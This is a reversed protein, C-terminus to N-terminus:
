LALRNISLVAMLISMIIGAIIVGLGLILAPELLTLLRQITTKVVRDYTDAVRLLMEDLRGTEEGVQVMHVALRPFVGVKMMPSALGQGEKLGAAVTGLGEAMARNGLTERVISLATLVAVGNALLTGLTRAFRATEIKSVLDGVLPLRLMRRDWRYRRGPDTLERRLYLLLGVVLALGLWWYNRLYEGTTVVVQTPLPLARGAQEFLVTFQPVVYTLLIIVSLGAVLVLIAPYILASKVSERLRGIEELFEALRALVVELAGGAEGARVMNIYFHTFVGQAEMADALSAGARVEDRIHGLLQKVRDEDSLETVLELARDLPLGATLLTSLEQTITGVEKQSLRRPRLLKHAGAWAGRAGSLEEALIPVHGLDHLRDVVAEKSAARM